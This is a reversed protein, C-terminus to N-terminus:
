CSHLEFYKRTDETDKIIQASLEEVSKFKREPRIFSYFDVRAPTNYLNGSYDLLHSEINVRNEESFTPRVGVNTVAYRSSGDALAVKTAYVGHRPVIVNEPFNMNITPANITQGIHYGSHVTDSVCHLHGLYKAAEEMNGESILTRIYTSSVTKDELKVEPIVDLGVGHESCWTALKEATGEGKYGFSFDHGCVIHVIELRSVVDDIFTEWPMNMVSKSFHLFITDEIGYCRKILEERGKCDTILPVETGFVLTDPHVDFSLVSAKVNLEAAREITKNLLAGHGLHVGDFFGLAIARQM